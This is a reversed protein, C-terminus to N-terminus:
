RLRRRGVGSGARRRSPRRGRRRDRVLTVGCLALVALALIALVAVGPLLILAVVAIVAAVGIDVLLEDSRV